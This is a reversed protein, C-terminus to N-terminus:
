RIGALKDEPKARWVDKANYYCYSGEPLLTYIASDWHQLMAKFTSPTLICGGMFCAASFHMLVFWWHCPRRLLYPYSELQPEQLLEEEQQLRLYQNMLLCLGSQLIGLRCISTSGLNMLPWGRFEQVPKNLLPITGSDRSGRWAKAINLCRLSSKLSLTLRTVWGNLFVTSPVSNQKRREKLGFEFQPRNPQSM